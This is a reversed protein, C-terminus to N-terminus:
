KEEFYFKGLDKGEDPSQILKDPHADLGGQTELGAMPSPAGMGGNPTIGARRSDAAEGFGVLSANGEDSFGSVSNMGDESMKDGDASGSAWTNTRTGVSGTASASGVTSREKGM